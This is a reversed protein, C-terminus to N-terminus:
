YKSNYFMKSMTTVASLDPTDDPHFSMGQVNEFMRATSSLDLRTGWHIFETINTNNRLSMTHIPGYEGYLGITTRDTSHRDLDSVRIREQEIVVLTNGDDVVWNSGDWSFDSYHIPSNAKTYIVFSDSNVYLTEHYNDIKDSDFYVDRVDINDTELVWDGGASINGTMDDSAAVNVGALNEIENVIDVGDQTSALDCTLIDIRGDQSVMDGLDSWFSRVSSDQTITETNVPNDTNIYFLNSSYARGEAAFAISEAKRGGLAENVVDLLQSLSVSNANYCISIVGDGASDALVDFDTVDSSILLVKPNDVDTDAFLAAEVIQNVEANFDQDETTFEGSQVEGDVEQSTASNADTNNDTDQTDGDNTEHPSDDSNADDVEANEADASEAAVDAVDAVAAGDFLVRNELEYMFLEDNSM